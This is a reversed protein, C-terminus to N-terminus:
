HNHKNRVYEMYPTKLYNDPIVSVKLNSQSLVWHLSLQDISHYRSTHYWWEKLMAQVQPTNRYMFATSAYLRQSPDVAKLQEDILENEYRSVIYPDKIKLRHKLYDAEQQVTRRHPHAFVVVDQCQDLFWKVSDPHSLRCSNDVWLYYDYGPAMQWSFMKVIRAQLRPTMTRIRPPFNDDDFHYYDAKISQAQHVVPKEFNGLNATIVAIKIKKLDKNPAHSGGWFHRSYVKGELPAKRGDWNEPYFACVPLITADTGAVCATLMEGGLKWWKFVGAKGIRELYDKLIPHGPISGIVGNAVRNKYKSEKHDYDRGVFFASNMFPEDEIPEFCVCDTDVYVGGYRYLIEVRIIDTAGRFERRSMLYSCRDWHTLYIAQLDEERWLRYEMGPNKQRWTNMWSIPMKSPGIWIQHLIKPIM